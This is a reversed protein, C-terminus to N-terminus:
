DIKGGSIFILSILNGALVLSCLVYGSIRRRSLRDTTARAPEAEAELLLRDLDTGFSRFRISSLQSSFFHLYRLVDALWTGIRGTAPVALVLFSKSMYFLTVLSLGFRMGRFLAEETISLTFISVLVRGEQLLLNFFVTSLFIITMGVPHLRRRQIIALLLFFALQGAKAPLWRQLVITAALLLCTGFLFLSATGTILPDLRGQKETLARHSVKTAAL